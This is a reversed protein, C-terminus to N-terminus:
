LSHSQYPCIACSTEQNNVFVVVDSLSM